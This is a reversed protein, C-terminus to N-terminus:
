VKFDSFYLSFTLSLFPGPHLGIPIRFHRHVSRVWSLSRSRRLEDLVTELSVVVARLQRCSGSRIKKQLHTPNNKEKEKKKTAIEMFKRVHNEKFHVLGGWWNATRCPVLHRHVLRWHPADEAWTQILHNTIEASPWEVHRWECLCNLTPIPCLMDHPLRKLVRVSGTRTHWLVFNRGCERNNHPM